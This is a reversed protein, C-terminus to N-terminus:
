FGDRGMPTKGEANRPYFGISAPNKARGNIADWAWSARRDARATKAKAFHATGDEKRYPILFFNQENGNMMHECLAMFDDRTWVVDAKQAHGVLVCHTALTPLTASDLELKV